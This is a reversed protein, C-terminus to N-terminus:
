KTVQYHEEWASFYTKLLDAHKISKIYTKEVGAKLRFGLGLGITAEGAKIMSTPLALSQDNFSLEGGIARPGVGIDGGLVLADGALNSISENVLGGERGIGVGYFAGPGISVTRSFFVGTETPSTVLGASLDIHGNLIIISPITLSLTGQWKYFPIPLITNKESSNRPKTQFGEFDTYVFPNNFAYSYPNISQPNTKQFADLKLDPNIFRGIESDYFRAGFYNFKLDIDEEKGDFAYFDINNKSNTKGFPHFKRKDLIDGKKDSLFNINGLYDYHYFHVKSTISDLLLSKYAKSITEFSIHSKRDENFFLQLAEIFEDLEVKKPNIGRQYIEKPSIIEDRDADLEDSLNVKSDWSLINDVQFNTLVKAAKRDVNVYKYLQGNRLEVLGNIFLEQEKKESISKTKIVKNIGSNYIFAISDRNPYIISKLRNKYDFGYEVNDKNKLNGSKDYTIKRTNNINTLAHVGANQGYQMNGLNLESNINSTQRILNGISNFTYNISGSPKKVNKIRYLDDYEIYQTRNIIGEPLWSGDVISDLNTVNDYFYTLDQLNEGKESVTSLNKVRFRNDYENNQIIKNKFRYTEIQNFSNYEAKDIFYPIHDILSRNNYHFNILMGDPYMLAIM